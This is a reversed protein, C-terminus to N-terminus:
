HTARLVAYAAYGFGLSILAVLGGITTWVVAWSVAAGVKTPELRLWLFAILLSGAVTVLLDTM